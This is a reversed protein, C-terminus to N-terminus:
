LNFRILLSAVTHIHIYPDDILNSIRGWLSLSVTLFIISILDHGFSLSFFFDNLGAVHVGVAWMQM